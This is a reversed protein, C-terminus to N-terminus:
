TGSPLQKFHKNTYLFMRAKEEDTLVRPYIFMAYFDMTPCRDDGTVDGGIAFGGTEGTPLGATLGTTTKILVGDKWLKATGGNREYMFACLKSTINSVSSIALRGTSYSGYDIAIEGNSWPIHSSFRAESVYSGPTGKKWCWQFQMQASDTNAIFMVTSTKGTSGGLEGVSLNEIQLKTNAGREFRIYERGLADVKLEPKKANAVASHDTSTVPLLSVSRLSDTFKSVTGLGDIECLSLSPLFSMGGSDYVPLGPMANLTDFMPKGLKSDVQTSMAATFPKDADSTNDLKDLKYHTKINDITVM